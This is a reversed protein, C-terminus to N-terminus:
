QLNGIEFWALVNQPKEQWWHKQNFV